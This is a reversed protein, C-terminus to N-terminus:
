CGPVTLYDSNRKHCSRYLQSCYCSYCNGFNETPQEDPLIAQAAECTGIWAHPSEDQLGVTRFFAANTSPSEVKKWCGVSFDHCVRNLALMIAAVSATFCFGFTYYVLIGGSVM